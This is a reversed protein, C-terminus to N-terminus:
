QVISLGEPVSTASHLYLNFEKLWPSQLNVAHDGEEWLNEEDSSLKCLLQPLKGMKKKSVIPGGNEGYM